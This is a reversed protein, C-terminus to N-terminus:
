GVTVTAFRGVSIDALRVGLLVKYDGPPADEPVSVTVPVAVPSAGLEIPGPDLATTVNLMAHAPTIVPQARAGIGAGAGSVEFDLSASGGPEVSVYRSALDVAAAPPVSTDVVGIKNEVWETFWVKQGHVALDLVMAVGCDPVQGSGPDCDRWNPNRSPVHYETLSEDSPDLVSISNAGHSNFVIRGEGDSEAWYPASVPTRIVGTHNGYVGAPPEALVYRTVQESGPDFRFVFSSDTGALWIHGDDGAAIGNIVGAQPPLRHTETHNQVDPAGGAALEERYAPLDFRVLLARGERIWTAYWVAGDGDTDFSSTFSEEIPSEIVIGPADLPGQADQFTIRSGIFDNIIIQSGEVRLKQPHSSGEGPYRTSEYTGEEPSFRWLLDESEDTFWVSGDPGRDLGWIMSGESGWSPNEYETFEEAEPEFVAVSGTNTQAFWVNGGADTTIALPNTCETPIAYEIIYDTAQPAGTGCLRPRVADPYSDAPTGTFTNLMASQDPVIGPIAITVGSTVMIGGLFAFALIGKTRKDM